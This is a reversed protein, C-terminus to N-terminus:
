CFSPNKRAFGDECANALPQVKFSTNWNERLDSEKNRQQTGSGKSFKIFSICIFFGRSTIYTLVWWIVVQAFRSFMSFSLWIWFVTQSEM